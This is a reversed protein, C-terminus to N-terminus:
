PERVVRFGLMQLRLEGPLKSRASSRLNASPKNYAGGRVVRQECDGTLWASGDAPAGQYNPNYCDQVWEMVNGATDYLGFPNAALSGVPAPQRADWDSGCDLCVANGQGLAYGWWHWDDSGGRAAYEWEAESPLRYTRGTQQSLWRTYAVADDWNVNVVPQRGRGWNQDAPLSRGSARAFRDYEGFSVETRSILLPPVQVPHAPSNGAGLGAQREGMTFEGGPLAVM